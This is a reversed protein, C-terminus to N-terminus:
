PLSRWFCTSDMGHYGGTITGRTCRSRKNLMASGRSSILVGPFFLCRLGREKRLTLHLSEMSPQLIRCVPWRFEDNETEKEVHPVLGAVKEGKAIQKGKL